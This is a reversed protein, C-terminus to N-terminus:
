PNLIVSPHVRMANLRAVVEEIPFYSDIVSGLKPVRHGRYTLDVKRYQERPVGFHSLFSDNVGDEMIDWGLHFNFIDFGLSDARELIGKFIRNPHTSIKHHCIVLSNPPVLSFNRPDPNVMLFIGNIRDAAKVEYALHDFEPPPSRAELFSTVDESDIFEPVSLVPVDLTSSAVPASVLRCCSDFSADTQEGISEVPYDLAEGGEVGVKLSMVNQVGMGKLILVARSSVDREEDRGYVVVPMDKPLKDLYRGFEGAPVSLAHPIRKRRSQQDQVDLLIHEM